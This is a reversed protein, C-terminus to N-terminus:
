LGLEIRGRWGKMRRRRRRRGGGRRWRTGMVAAVV